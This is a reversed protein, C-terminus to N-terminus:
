VRPRSLCSGKVELAVPPIGTDVKLRLIKPGFLCITHFCTVFCESLTKPSEPQLRSFKVKRWSLHLGAAHVATAAAHM